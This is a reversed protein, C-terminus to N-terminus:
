DIVFLEKDVYMNTGTLTYKKSHTFE